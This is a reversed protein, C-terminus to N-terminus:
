MGTLPPNYTSNKTMEVLVTGGSVVTVVVSTNSNKAITHGLETFTMDGSQFLELVTEGNRAITISGNTSWMVRKISAANVTEIAVNSSLNALSVTASGAGTVRIISSSRLSNTIEQAM